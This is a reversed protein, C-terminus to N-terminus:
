DLEVDLLFLPPNAGGDAALDLLSGARADTQELTFTGDDRERRRYVFAEFPTEREGCADFMRVYISYPGDGPLEPWVVSEVNRGDHVCGAGSDWTLRGTTEDDLADDDVGAADGPATTPRKWGVLKGTPTRVRLDLDVARDWHLVVAAAPPPLSPDCANLDDGLRPDTVCLDLEFSPGLAGAVDVAAIELRRLGPPVAAGLDYHLNFTRESPVAPDVAEIPAIWWGTGLDQLRMAIAYADDDVRGGLARGRQGIVAIGSASEVASVAVGDARRPPDGRVFSGGVVALPETPGLLADAHDCAVLGLAVVFPARLM